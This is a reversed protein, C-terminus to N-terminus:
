MLSFFQTPTYQSYDNAGERKEEAELIKNLISKLKPNNNQKLVERTRRAIEEANPIDYDVNAIDLNRNYEFPLTPNMKAMDNQLKILRMTLNELFKIEISTQTLTTNNQEEFTILKEVRKTQDLIAWKFIELADIPKDKRKKFILGM